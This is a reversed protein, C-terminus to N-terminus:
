PAASAPDAPAPATAPATAPAPAPATAPAPEPAPTPATAPAPETAPPPTAPEAAVAAAPSSKPATAPSPAPTPTAAPATTTGLNIPTIRPPARRLTGDYNYITGVPKSSHLRRRIRRIKNQVLLPNPHESLCAYFYALARDGQGLEQFCNGLEFFVLAALQPEPEEAALHEYTAIAEAYRGQVYYSNAILFRAQYAESSEPWRNILAKAETRAQDYSKLQFYGQTIQLQAWRTETRDPFEVVLKQYENIAVELNALKHRYIDAVAARAALAQDTNPYLRVLRGYDAIAQNYDHRYLANIKGLRDLVLLRQEEEPETLENDTELRKLLKRYLREAKIYEQRYLLDNANDIGSQIDTGCSAVLLATLAWLWLTKGAMGRM